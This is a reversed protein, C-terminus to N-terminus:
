VSLWNMNLLISAVIIVSDVVQHINPYANEFQINSSRSKAFNIKTLIFHSIYQNTNPFRQRL